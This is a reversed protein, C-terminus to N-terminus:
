LGAKISSREDAVVEAAPRADTQSTCSCFFGRHWPDGASADPDTASPDAEIRCIDTGGLIVRKQYNEGADVAHVALVVGLGPARYV